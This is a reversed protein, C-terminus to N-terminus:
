HHFLKALDLAGSKELLFVTAGIVLVTYIIQRVRQAAARQEKRGKTVVNLLAILSQANTSDIRNAKQDDIIAKAARATTSTIEEPEDFADFGYAVIERLLGPDIKPPDSKSM